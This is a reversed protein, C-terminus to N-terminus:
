DLQVDSVEVEQEQEVDPEVDDEAGAEIQAAPACVEEVDDGTPLEDEVSVCDAALNKLPKVPLEALPKEFYVKGKGRKTNDGVTSPVLWRQGCPKMQAKKEAVLRHVKEFLNEYTM